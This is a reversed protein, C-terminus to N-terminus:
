FKNLKKRRGSSRASEVDTYSYKKIGDNDFSNQNIIRLFMLPSPVIAKRIRKDEVLYNFVDLCTIYFWDGKKHNIKFHNHLDKEVQYYDDVEFTFCVLESHYYGMQGRQRNEDSSNTRGIRTIKNFHDYLCYVYGIM